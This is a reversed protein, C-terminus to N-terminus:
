SSSVLKVLYESDHWLPHHTNHVAKAVNVRQFDVKWYAVSLGTGELLMRFDASAYCRYHQCVAKHSGDVPQWYEYFRNHVPDYDRMRYNDVSTPVHALKKLM